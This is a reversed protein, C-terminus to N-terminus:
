KATPFFKSFTKISQEVTEKLSDATKEVQKTWISDVYEPDGGALNSLATEDDILRIKKVLSRLKGEFDLIAEIDTHSLRGSYRTYIIPLDKLLLELSNAFSVRDDVDTDLIASHLDDFSVYELAFGWPKKAFKYKNSKPFAVGGSMLFM